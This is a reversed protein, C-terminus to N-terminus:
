EASYFKSKIFKYLYKIVFYLAILLLMIGIKNNGHSNAVDIIKQDIIVSNNAKLYQVDFSKEDSDWFSSTDQEYYVTDGKRLSLLKDKVGSYILMDGQIQTTYENDFKLVLRDHTDSGREYFIPDEILVKKEM